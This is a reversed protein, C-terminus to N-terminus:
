MFYKKRGTIKLCPVFSLCLRALDRSSVRSYTLNKQIVEGKVTAAGVGAFRYRRMLVKGKVAKPVKPVEM